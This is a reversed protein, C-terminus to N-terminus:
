WKIKQCITCETVYKKLQDKMGMWNHVSLNLAKYTRDFGLNGVVSNHFKEFVAEGKQFKVESDDDQTRLVELEDDDSDSYRM